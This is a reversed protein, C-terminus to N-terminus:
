QEYNDIAKKINTYHILIDELNKNEKKIENLHNNFEKEGKESAEYLSLAYILSELDELKPITITQGGFYDCLKLFNEKDLVYVLQCLSSYEDIDIEKYLAYLLLSYIDREHLKKIKEAINM